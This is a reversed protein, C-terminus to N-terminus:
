AVNEGSDSVLNSTSSRSDFVPKLASVLEEAQPNHPAVAKAVSYLGASPVFAEHLSRLVVDNLLQEMEAVEQQVPLLAEVVQVDELVAERDFSVAMALEPHDLSAQALKRAARPFLRSPRTMSRRQEANLRLHGVLEDLRSRSSRLENLLDQATLILTPLDVRTYGKM